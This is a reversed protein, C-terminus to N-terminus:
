ELCEAILRDLLPLLVDRRQQCRSVSVGRFALNAPPRMELFTKCYGAAFCVIKRPTLQAEVDNCSVHMELVDDLCASFLTDEWVPVDCRERLYDIIESKNM